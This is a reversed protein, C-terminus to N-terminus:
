PKGAIVELQELISSVGLHWQDDEAYGNLNIWKIPDEDEPLDESLTHITKSAIQTAEKLNTNFQKWSILVNFPNNVMLNADEHDKQVFNQEQGTIAFLLLPNVDYDAAVEIIINFYREEALLSNRRILWEKLAQQDIEKYQISKHLDSSDMKKTKAPASTVKTNETVQMQPQFENTNMTETDVRTIGIDGKSVVIYLVLVLIVFGVLFPLARRFDKKVRGSSFWAEVMQSYTLPPNTEEETEMFDNVLDVQREREVKIIIRNLDSALETDLTDQDSESKELSEEGFELDELDEEDDDNDQTSFAAELQARLEAEFPDAKESEVEIAESIKSDVSEEEEMSAENYLGMEEVSLPKSGVTEEQNEQIVEEQVFATLEHIMTADVLIDQQNNLWNSLDSAFIAEDIDIAVCTKLIDYANIEFSKLSIANTLLARKIEKQDNRKFEKIHEDLIKHVADAFVRARNSESEDPFKKAIYSKLLNISYEYLIKNKKLNDIIEKM